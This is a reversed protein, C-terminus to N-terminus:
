SSTLASVTAQRVHVQHGQSLVWRCGAVVVQMRGGGGAGQWWWWRCCHNGRGSFMEMKMLLM